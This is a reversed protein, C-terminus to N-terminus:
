QERDSGGDELKIDLLAAAEPLTMKETVASLFDLINKVTLNKAKCFNDLVRIEDNHLETKIKNIQEDIEKTKKEAVSQATFAKERKECLTKLKEELRETKSIAKSDPKTEKKDPVQLLQETDATGNKENDTNM